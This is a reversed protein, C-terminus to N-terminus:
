KIVNFDGNRAAQMEEIVIKENTRRIGEMRQNLNDLPDYWDGHEGPHSPVVETELGCDELTRAILASVTTKGSGATGVVYIKLM